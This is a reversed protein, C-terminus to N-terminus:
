TIRQLLGFLREFTKGYPPRLLAGASLRSQLFVPKEKSFTRFGWQGHYAGMGSAGVGGFPQNEQVLHLMCDNITVGGAVTEHLIRQRNGRDRGFWYLALPRDARNVHDIAEDITAYEVIPLVPGFIEERMLRLDPSANRVLTPLLKRSTTGLDEGAPNIETVDAGADRAEAIMDRLRQYHRDSIIATYDPNDRLSPYLRAIATALKAAVTSAQGKPVLLYDPAICTQGANLLKGYAISATAADLDCSPDFIAPSKGGLELTVPTLNAAAAIAVQRGVATSGTFLLHDFPMSVFARGMEADGTIVSLEDPAFHEGALKALLESFAPTLESPKVLVRNGAALAATVPAVALQFPYNWPSVIGVVGLPQAVLRNKGPLFPLTTAVRRERMWGKLHSLAHRIGARVVFLEALRTEHTSRGGFDIDIAACIDAEHRETLALLRKLRDKRVDIDPFPQKEFAARQLQFREGLIDQRVQLM